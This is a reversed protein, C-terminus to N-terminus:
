LGAGVVRGYLNLLPGDLEAPEADIIHVGMSHIRNVINEREELLTLSALSEYAQEVNTSPRSLIDYYKPDRMATVIAVHKRRIQAINRQLEWGQAENDFDTALVVLSRRGLAHNMQVFAPTFATETHVPEVNVSARVIKSLQGSGARPPILTRVEGDFIMLGVLDGRHLAAAAIKAMSALAIDVKRRGDVRTGMLRGADCALMVHRRREPEYRKIALHGSRAYAKWDVAQPPDGPVYPALSEFEGGRGWGKSRTIGADADRAARLILENSRLIEVGPIVAISSTDTIRIIRRMLRLPGYCALTATEFQMRGRDRSSFEFEITCTENEGVKFPVPKRDGDIEEPLVEYLVGSVKGGHNAIKITMSFPNGVGVESPHQRTLTLDDPHPTGFADVTALLVLVAATILLPFLMTEDLLAAISFPILSLVLFQFIMTPSYRM